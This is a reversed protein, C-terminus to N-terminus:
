TVSSTVHGGYTSHAQVTAIRAVAQSRTTKNKEVRVFKPM